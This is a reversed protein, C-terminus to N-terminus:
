LDKDPTNDPKNNFLPKSTVGKTKQEEREKDLKAREKKCGKRIENMRLNFQTIERDIDKLQKVKQDLIKEGQDIESVLRTRQHFLLNYHSYADVSTNFTLKLSKDLVIKGMKQEVKTDIEEQYNPELGSM